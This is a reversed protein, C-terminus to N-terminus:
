IEMDRKYSMYKQCIYLTYVLILIYAKKNFKDNQSNLASGIEISPKIENNM